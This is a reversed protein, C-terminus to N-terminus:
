DVELTVPEPFIVCKLEEIPAIVVPLTRDGNARTDYGLLEDSYRAYVVMRGPVLDPNAEFTAVPVTLIHAWIRPFKENKAAILGGEYVGAPSYPRMLVHGEIPVWHLALSTRPLEDIYFVRAMIDVDNEYYTALVDCEDIDLISEPMDLKPQCVSLSAGCGPVLFVKTGVPTATDDGTALVVATNEVTAYTDPLVLGTPAKGDDLKVFLHGRMPCLGIDLQPHTLM